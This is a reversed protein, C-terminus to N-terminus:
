VATRFVVCCEDLLEQSAAEAVAFYRVALEFIQAPLLNPQENFGLLFALKTFLMNYAIGAAKYINGSAHYEFGWGKQVLGQVTPNTKDGRIDAHMIAQIAEVYQIQSVDYCFYMMPDGQEMDAYEKAATRLLGKGQLFLAETINAPGLQTSIGTAEQAHLTEIGVWLGGMMQQRYGAITAAQDADSMKNTLHRPLETAGYHFTPTATVEEVTETHYTLGSGQGQATSALTQSVVVPLIRCHLIEGVKQAGVPETAYKTIARKENPRRYIDAAWKEALLNAGETGPTIGAAAM